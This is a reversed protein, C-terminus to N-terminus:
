KRGAVRCDFFCPISAAFAVARVKREDSSAISTVQATGRSRHSCMPLSFVSGSRSRLFACGDCSSSVCCAIQTHFCSVVGRARIREAGNWSCCMCLMHNIDVCMTCFVSLRTANFSFLCGKISCALGCGSVALSLFIVVMMSDVDAWHKCLDVGVSSIFVCRPINIGRALFTSFFWPKSKQILRKHLWSFDCVCVSFACRIRFKLCVLSLSSPSLFSCSFYFKAFNSM